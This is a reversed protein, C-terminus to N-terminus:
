DMQCYDMADYGMSRLAATMAKANRSRANGQARSDPGFVFLKSGYCNWIFCGTGAEKAAQKVKEATWRPLSLAASDFNCTGGDEPNADEAARGADLAKKLDDRLKAYRGTLAGPARKAKPKDPPYAARIAAFHRLAEAETTASMSAIEVYGGPTMLMTEYNSPSLEATDLIVRRGKLTYEEHKITNIM